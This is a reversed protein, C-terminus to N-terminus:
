GVVSYSQFFTLTVSTTRVTLFDKGERGGDTGGRCGKKQGGRDTKGWLSLKGRNRSALNVVM